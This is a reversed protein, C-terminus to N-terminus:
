SENNLIKLLNAFSSGNLLTNTRGTFSQVDTVSFLADRPVELVTYCTLVKEIGDANTKVDDFRILHRDAYVPNGAANKGRGVKQHSITLLQQLGLALGAVARKSGTPDLTLVDYVRVNAGSFDSTSLNTTLM